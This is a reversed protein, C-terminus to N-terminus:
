HHETDHQSGSNLLGKPSCNIFTHVHRLCRNWNETLSPTPIATYEEERDEETATSDTKEVEILCSFLSDQHLIKYGEQVTHLHCAQPKNKWHPLPITVARSPPSSAPISHGNNLQEEKEKRLFTQKAFRIYKSIRAKGQLSQPVQVGGLPSQVVM